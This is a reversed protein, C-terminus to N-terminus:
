DKNVVYIGVRYELDGDKIYNINKHFISYDGEKKEILHNEWGNSSSLKEILKRLSSVQNATVALSELDMDTSLLTELRELEKNAGEADFLKGEVNSANALDIKYQKPIDQSNVLTNLFQGNVKKSSIEAVRAVYGNNKLVSEINELTSMSTTLGLSVFIGVPKVFNEGDMSNVYFTKFDHQYFIEVLKHVDDRNIKCSKTKPM